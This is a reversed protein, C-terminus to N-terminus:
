APRTARPRMVVNGFSEGFLFPREVCAARNFLGLLPRQSVVHRIEYGEPLLSLLEAESSFAEHTDHSYEVFLAPRFRQLTERLGELVDRELGEVDIKMLDIRSLGISGLYGDAGVIRLAGASRNNDAARGAVFSGTGENAGEPAFFERTEDNRGVGFPHVTVNALGNELVRAELRRRVKELPEFAHVAACCRSLYLTHQGVNAGIDVFVAGSKGAVVAELYRLESLEYAGYFYVNWDIFSALDGSYRLGFFDTTFPTPAVRDPDVLRRLVRERLGGRLWTQRAWAQLLHMTLPAPLSMPTVM